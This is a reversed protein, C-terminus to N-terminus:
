RARPAEYEIAREKADYKENEFCTHKEPELIVLIVNSGM